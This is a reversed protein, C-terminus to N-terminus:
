GKVNDLQVKEQDLLSIIFVIVFVTSWAPFSLFAHNSFQLFMERVLVFLYIHSEEDM